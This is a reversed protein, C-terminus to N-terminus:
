LTTVGGLRNNNNPPTVVQTNKFKTSNDRRIKKVKADFENQERPSNRQCRKLKLKIKCFSCELSVLIIM